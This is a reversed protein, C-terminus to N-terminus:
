HPGPMIDYLHLRRTTRLSHSVAVWLYDNSNCEYMAAWLPKPAKWPIHAM